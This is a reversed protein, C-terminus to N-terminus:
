GGHGLTLILSHVAPYLLVLFMAPFILFILPFLMKVPAKMIQERAVQRRRKRTEAALNRLMTGISVGLTEGQIVARSFARVSPTDCREVLNSMAVETGLGMSQEHLMLRLEQGLPGEFRATVLQLSGAFGLGAEVTATLVDVLEPLARDVADMRKQARSRVATLVLLWVIVASLIAMLVLLAPQAGSALAELLFLTPVGLTAMVRYGHFAEPSIQYMGAARLTRAEVPALLSSKGQFARGIREALADFQSRLSRTEGEDEQVATGFGYTEISRVQDAVRIRPLAIARALLAVATALMLLGFIFLLAM